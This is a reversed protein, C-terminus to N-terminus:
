RLAALNSRAGGGRSRGSCARGRVNDSIGNLICRLRDFVVRERGGFEEAFGGRGVRREDRRGFDCGRDGGSGGFTFVRGEWRFRVGRLQGGVEPLAVEFGGFANAARRVSGGLLRESLFTGCGRRGPLRWGLRPRLSTVELAVRAEDEQALQKGAADAIPFAGFRGGAGCAACGVGGLLGFRYVQAFTQVRVVALILPCDWTPRM